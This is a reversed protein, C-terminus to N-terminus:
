KDREQALRYWEEPTPLRFTGDRNLYVLQEQHITVLLDALGDRDEDKLSLVVPTLDEHLGFLYPGQWTQLQRVDGGPIVIIVVQRDLNLAIFRSPQGSREAPLGAYGSLHTTRPRGYRWDDLFVRGSEAIISILITLAIIVLIHMFGRLLQGFNYVQRVPPIERSTVAM